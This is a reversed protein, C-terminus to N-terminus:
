PAFIKGCFSVGFNNLVKNFTKLGIQAQFLIKNAIPGM